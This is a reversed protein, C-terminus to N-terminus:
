CRGAGWEKLFGVLAEQFDDLVQAQIEERIRRFDEGAVLFLHDLEDPTRYRSRATFIWLTEELQSSIGVYDDNFVYELDIDLQTLM